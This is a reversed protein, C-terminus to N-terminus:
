GTKLRRIPITKRFSIKGTMAECDGGSAAIPESLRSGAWGQDQIRACRQGVAFEVPIWRAAGAIVDVM